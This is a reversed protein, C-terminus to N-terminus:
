RPLCHMRSRVTVTAPYQYQTCMVNCCAYCTASESTLLTPQVPLNSSHPRVIIYPALPSCTFPHALPDHHVVQLAGARVVAPALCDSKRVLNGLAGAANGRTKSDGDRALLSVLAPM